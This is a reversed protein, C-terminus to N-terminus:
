GKLGSRLEARTMMEVLTQFNTEPSWGLLRQAKQIDGVKPYVEVPRYLDSSEEVHNWVDKMGLTQAAVEIVEKVSHLVGTAIVFDQPVDEQLMNHMAFIYDGAFGWDRTQEMNGVNLMTEEGASIKALTRTIKRIAAQETRRPSEHNFLIASCAFIENQRAAQIVDRDAMMKAKAYPNKTEWDRPSEENLPTSSPLFIESSSAQLFRVSPNVAVAARLLVGVSEFNIKVTREEDAFAEQLTTVGAFNYVEDPLARNVAATLSDADALDGHLMQVADPVHQVNTGARELGFVEYGESLLKEALYSGDQGAVGTILAKKM